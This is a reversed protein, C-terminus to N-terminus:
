LVRPLCESHSPSHTHNTPMPALPSHVERTSFKHECQGHLYKICLSCGQFTYVSLNTNSFFYSDRLNYMEEKAFVLEEPQSKKKHRPQFSNANRRRGYKANRRAERLETGFVEASGQVMWVRVWENPKLYIRYEEDPALKITEYVYQADLKKHPSAM